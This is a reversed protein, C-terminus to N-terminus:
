SGEGKLFFIISACVVFDNVDLDVLGYIQLLDGFCMVKKKKKFYSLFELRFECLCINQLDPSRVWVRMSPPKKPFPNGSPRIGLHSFCVYSLLM